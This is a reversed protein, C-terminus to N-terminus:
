VCLRLKRIARSRTRAQKTASHATEIPTLRVNVDASQLASAAEHLQALRRTSRRGSFPNYLVVARCIATM